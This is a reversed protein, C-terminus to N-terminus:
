FQVMPKILLISQVLNSTETSLPLIVQNARSRSRTVLRLRVHVVASALSVVRTPLTLPISGCCISQTITGENSYDIARSEDYVGPRPRM